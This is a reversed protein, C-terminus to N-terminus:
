PSSTTTRRPPLPLARTTPPSNLAASKGPLLSTHQAAGFTCAVPYREYKMPYYLLSQALCFRPASAM